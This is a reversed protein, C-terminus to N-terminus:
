STQASPNLLPLSLTNVAYKEAKLRTMELEEADAKQQVYSLLREIQRQNYGKAALTDKLRQLERKSQLIALNAQNRQEENGMMAYGAVNVPTATLAPYRDLLQRTGKDLTYYISVAEDEFLQSKLKAIEAEKARIQSQLDAKAQHEEYTSSVPYYSDIKSRLEAIEKNIRETESDVYDQTLRSSFYPSAMEAAKLPSLLPPKYPASSFYPSSIEAAKLPPLLPPKSPQSLTKFATEDVSVKGVNRLISDIRAAGTNTPTGSTTVTGANSLIKNIRDTGSAM